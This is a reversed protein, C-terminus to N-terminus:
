NDLLDADIGGDVDEPRLDERGAAKGPRSEAPAPGVEVVAGAARIAQQEAVLEQAGPSLRFDNIEAFDLVEEFESALATVYPKEYKASAIKKAEAYFDEKRGWRICFRGTEKSKTIWRSHRPAYEGSVALGRARDNWIIVPFGAALLRHGAEAIRDVVEGDTVGVTFQWCNGTWSYGLGPKVIEWFDRNKIPYKITIKNDAAAIEAPTGSVPQAPSLLAEAKADQEAEAVEPPAPQEPPNATVMETLLDGIRKDRNEIWFKASSQERLLALAYDRHEHDLPMTRRSEYGWHMGVDYGQMQGSIIRGVIDLKAARISEAWAIQKETGTLQQLGAEQNQAAAEKNQCDTCTLSEYWEIKRERDRNPGYLQVVIECGCAQTITYKAM